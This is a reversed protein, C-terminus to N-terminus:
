KTYKFTEESKVRGDDNPWQGVNHNRIAYRTDNNNNAKKRFNKSQIFIFTNDFDHDTASCCKYEIYINELLPHTETETENKKEKIKRNTTLKILFHHHLITKIQGHQTQTQNAENCGASTHFYGFRLFIWTHNLQNLKKKRERKERQM